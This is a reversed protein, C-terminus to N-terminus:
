RGSVTKWYRVFTKRFSVERYSLPRCITIKKGTHPSATFIRIARRHSVTNIPFCIWCNKKQSDSILDTEGAGVALLNVAVDSNEYWVSLERVEDPDLTEPFTVGFKELVAITKKFRRLIPYGNDEDSILSTPLIENGTEQQEPEYSITMNGLLDSGSLDSYSLTLLDQKYAEAFEEKEEKSRFTYSGSRANVGYAWISSIESSRRGFIPYMAKIFGPKEYLEDANEEFVQSDVPYTRYVVRGNKLNYRIDVLIRDGDASEELAANESGNEAM